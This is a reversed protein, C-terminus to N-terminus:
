RITSSICQCVSQWHIVFINASPGHSVINGRKYSIVYFVAWLFSTLSQYLFYSVLHFVNLWFYLCSDESKGFFLWRVSNSCALSCFIGRLNFLIVRLSFYNSGASDELNTQFLTMIQPFHSELFSKCCIFGSPLSWLKQCNQSEFTCTKCIKWIVDM